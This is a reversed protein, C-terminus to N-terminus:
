MEVPCRGSVYHQAASGLHLRVGYPFRAILCHPVNGDSARVVKTAPKGTKTTRGEIPVRRPKCLAAVVGDLGLLPAIRNVEAIWGPNNHSSDGGGRGIVCDVSVHMTEHLLVDFAYCPGLWAPQIRWPDDKETGGLLSPHLTIVPADPRACTKGLCGGHATLAWQILPWPLSGAFYTANIFEFAEYGWVGRRAWYVRAIQKCADAHLAKNPAVIEDKEKKARICLGAM